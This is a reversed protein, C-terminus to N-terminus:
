PLPFMKRLADNPQMNKGGGYLWSIPVVRLRGPMVYKGEADFHANTHGILVRDRYFFVSPYSCRCYKEPLDIVYDASREPAPETPGAVIGEPRSFGIAGPEVRTGELSSEINQFFEWIAGNTRSIATSLRTRILGERVERPSQQNWVVLLDGTGPIKRLQAPAGSAALPTPTPAMWTEGDDFSWSKYLRGWNSRMFMLLKGREVEVVAPEGTMSWSSTKGDWIYIEGSHSTKWSLGDDDSYYVFSWCFGPDTHHAGTPIWQNDRLGGLARPGPIQEFGLNATHAHAQTMYGYAPLVIRGSETRLIVNNLTAVGFPSPPSIQIPKQWTEGLDESRWFYIKGDSRGVYGLGQKKLRILNFEGSGQLPNGDKDRKQYPPTWTLGGDHSKAFNPGPHGSVEYVMLIDSNPLEVDSASSGRGDIVALLEAPRTMPVDSHKERDGAVSIVRFLALLLYFAPTKM